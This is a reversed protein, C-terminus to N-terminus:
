GRHLIYSQKEPSFPGSSLDETLIGCKKKLNGQLFDVYESGVTLDEVIVKQNQWHPQFM